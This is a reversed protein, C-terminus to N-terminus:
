SRKHSRVRRLAFRKGAFWAGTGLLLGLLCLGPSFGAASRLLLLPLIVILLWSLYLLTTRAHSFGSRVLWQYLHERHATYWRRGRLVRSSLTLGADLLPVCAILLLTWADAVAIAHAHVALVGLAFGLAGSGVDGM